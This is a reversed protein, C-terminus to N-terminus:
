DKLHQAKLDNMLQAYAYMFEEQSGRLIAPKLRDFNKQEFFGVVEKGDSNRIVPQSALGQTVPHTVVFRVMADCMSPHYGLVQVEIDKFLYWAPSQKIRTYARSGDREEFYRVFSEIERVAKFFDTVECTIIVNVMGTHKQSESTVAGHINLQDFPHRVDDYRIVKVDCSKAFVLARKLAHINRVGISIDAFDFITPKDVFYLNENQYFANKNDIAYKLEKKYSPFIKNSLYQLM